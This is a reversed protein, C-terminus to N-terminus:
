DSHFLPAFETYKYCALCALRVRANAAIAGHQLRTEPRSTENVPPARKEAHKVGILFSDMGQRGPTQSEGTREKKEPTDSHTLQTVTRREGGLLGSGDNARELAEGTDLGLNGTDVNAGVFQGNADRPCILGLDDAKEACVGSVEVSQRIPQGGM